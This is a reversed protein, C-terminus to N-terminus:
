IKEYHWGEQMRTVVRDLATYDANTQPVLQVEVGSEELRQITRSCAYFVVDNDQLASIERSFPTIDRRLLDIGRENAIIEVHRTEDDSASELLKEAQTLAALMQEPEASTVHLLFNSVKAVPATRAPGVERHEFYNHVLLGGSLGVGVLVTAALARSLFGGRSLPARMAHTPDPVNEYALKVLEKMKRQQCLRKDLEPSRAAENYLRSKEEPDLEGDVFANLQEDSFDEEKKM